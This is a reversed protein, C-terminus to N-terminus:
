PTNVFIPTMPGIWAGFTNYELYELAEGYEMGEDVMCQVCAEKSYVARPPEGDVWGIFAGDLGDALVLSIDNQECLEEIEERTM